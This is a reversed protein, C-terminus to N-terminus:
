YSFQEDEDFLGAAKRARRRLASREFTPQEPAPGAKPQEATIETLAPSASRRPEGRPEVKNVAIGPAGGRGIRTRPLDISKAEGAAVKRLGQMTSTPNMRYHRLLSSPLIRDLDESMALPNTAAKLNFGM